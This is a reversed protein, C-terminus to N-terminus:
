RRTWRGPRRAEVAAVGEKYDQTRFLAAQADCELQTQREVADGIGFRLTDRTGELALPAAEALEEALAFAAADVQDREVVVDALGIRGAEVGDIRRGTLLLLGAAQSGILRPLLYTLGFGPHIGIKVFNGAFKADSAAVRFDGVMALGLGGGVTAGQIAVVIPKRTRFLRLAKFYLNRPDPFDGEGGVDSGENGSFKAGACFVKGESRLVVARVADMTDIRELTEAIAEIMAEDFYNLPPRSFTVVAVAERIDLSVSKHADNM